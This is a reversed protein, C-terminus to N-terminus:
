FYWDGKMGGGGLMNSTNVSQLGGDNEAERAALAEKEAAEEEAKILDAILQEVVKRQEAESMKSLRQLSDQLQVTTYEQILEDLVESRKQIRAFQENEPSLITVAERYCPQADVYERKNYYLDGAKM